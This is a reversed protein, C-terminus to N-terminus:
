TTTTWNDPYGAPDLTPNVSLLLTGFTGVSTATTGVDKGGVASFRVELRDAYGGGTSTRTQLSLVDGNNFSLRPTILGNSTTIGTGTKCGDANLYNAYLCSSPDGTAASFAAPDGKMWDTGPVFSNNKFGWGDALLRTALLPATGEFGEALTAAHVAPVTGLLLTLGGLARALPFRWPSRHRTAPTDITPTHM